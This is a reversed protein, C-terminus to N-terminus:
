PTRRAYIDELVELQKASLTRGTDVRTRLSEVFEEEWATLHVGQREVTELMTEIDQAGREQRFLDAM